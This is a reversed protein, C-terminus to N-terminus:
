PSLESTGGVLSSRDNSFLHNGSQLRAFADLSKGYFACYGWAGKSQESTLEGDLLAFHGRNFDRLHQLPMVALERPVARMSSFRTGQQLVLKAEM